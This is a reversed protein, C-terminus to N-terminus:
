EKAIEKTLQQSTGAQEGRKQEEREAEVEEDADRQLRNADEM